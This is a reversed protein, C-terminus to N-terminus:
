CPRQCRPSVGPPHKTWFCFVIRAPCYVGRASEQSFDLLAFLKMPQNRHKKSEVLRLLAVVELAAHTIVAAGHSVDTCRPHHHVLLLQMVQQRAGLLGAEQSAIYARARIQPIGPLRLWEAQRSLELLKVQLQCANAKRSRQQIPLPPLRPKPRRHACQRHPWLCVGGLPCKAAPPRPRVHLITQSVRRFPVSGCQRHQELV